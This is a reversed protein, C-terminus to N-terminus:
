RSAKSLVHGTFQAVYEYIKDGPVATNNSGIFFPVGFYEGTSAWGSLLQDKLVFTVQPISPHSSKLHLLGRHDLFAASGDPWTAKLLGFRTDKPTDIREFDIWPEKWQAEPLNVQAFELHSFVRTECTLAFTDLKQSLLYLKGHRSIAISRYYRRLTVSSQLFSLGGPELRNHTSVHDVTATCTELDLFYNQVRHHRVERAYVGVRLRDTSIGICNSYTAGASPTVQQAPDTLCWVSLDTFLVLPAPWNPCEWIVEANEVRPFPPLPQYTLGEASLGLAMWTDDIQVFRDSYRNVKETQITSLREGNSLRHVSMAREAILVIHDELRCAHLIVELGHELKQIKARAEQLDATVLTATGDSKPLLFRAIMKQEDLERWSVVGAPFTNTVLYAGQNKDPWYYLVGDKTNGVLGVNRLYMMNESPIAPSLLLPFRNLRLIDPLKADRHRLQRDKASEPPDRFLKELEVQAQQLHRRGLASRVELEYYGTRDVKALFLESTGAQDLSREFSADKVVLPHTIVIRETNGDGDDFRHLFEGLAHHPSPEPTLRGLLNVLGERQDLKAQVLRGKLNTYVEIEAGSEAQMAFALALGHAFVRPLGWLRVGVDVFIVRRRSPMRPPSERRLYLAENLAVRVALVDPDQALESMLLRDFSGRNAIDSFGGTPMEQPQSLPRPLQVVASLSQAIRALGALESTEEDLVEGVLLRIREVMPVTVEAPFLEGPLGTRRLLELDLGEFDVQHCVDLITRITETFGLPIVGFTPPLQSEERLRAAAEGQHFMQMIVGADEDGIHDRHEDFLLNLITTSTALSFSHRQALGHIRDLCQWFEGLRPHIEEDSPGSLYQQLLTAGGSPESWTRKTAALVLLLEEFRPLGGQGVDLIVQEIEQYLALTSGNHWVVADLEPSWRWFAGLEPLLYNVAFEPIKM